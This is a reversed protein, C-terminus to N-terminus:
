VRMEIITCKIKIIFEKNFIITEAKLGIEPAKQHSKFDTDTAKNTKPM